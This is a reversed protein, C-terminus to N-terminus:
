MEALQYGLGRVTLLREPRAPDHEIKARLRRVHVDLTKTDGVYNTGWLRDVLQGRTLVRGANRLLMELLEFERLPLKIEVGDVTVRHREVYMEIGSAKLAYSDDIEEPTTGQRARGRRVVSRVRALLEPTSFPKTVYDDAGLELGLVIDGESNKATLMIIPVESVLRVRRAIETGDVGPLMLDLLIVEPQRTEFEELASVGDAVARVEHGERRLLYSLTERLTDDDEVLLVQAM